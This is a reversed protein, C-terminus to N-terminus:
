YDAQGGSLTRGSPTTSLWGTTLLVIWLANEVPHALPNRRDSQDAMEPMLARESSLVPRVELAGFLAL